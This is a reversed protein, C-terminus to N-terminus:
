WAQTFNNGLYSSGFNTKMNHDLIGFRTKVGMKLNIMMAGIPHNLRPIRLSAELCSGLGMCNLEVGFRAILSQVHLWLSGLIINEVM